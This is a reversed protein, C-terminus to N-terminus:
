WENCGEVTERLNKKGKQKLRNFENGRDQFSRVVYSSLYFFRDTIILSKVKKSAINIVKNKNVNIFNIGDTSSIFKEYDVITVIDRLPIFYDEELYIYM